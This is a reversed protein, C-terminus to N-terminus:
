ERLLGSQVLRQLADRAKQEVMGSLAVVVPHRFERGIVAGIQAMKKAEGLRDLRHLGFPSEAHALRAIKGDLGDLIVAVIIFLAAVEFLKDQSALMSYFGCFINGLTFLTPLLFLGRRARSRNTSM